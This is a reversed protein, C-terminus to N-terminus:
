LLNTEFELNSGLTLVLKWDDQTIMAGDLLKFTLVTNPLPIKYDTM